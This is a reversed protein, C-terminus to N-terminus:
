IKIILKNSKWLQTLDALSTAKTSLVNKQAYVSPHDCTMISIKVYENNDFYILHHPNHFLYSTAM